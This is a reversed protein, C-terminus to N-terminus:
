TYLKYLLQFLMKVLLSMINYCKVCYVYNNVQTLWPAFQQHVESLLDNQITYISVFYLLYNRYVGLAYCFICECYTATYYENLIHLSTHVYQVIISQKRNNGNPISLYM